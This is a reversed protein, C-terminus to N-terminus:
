EHALISNDNNTELCNSEAQIPSKVATFMLYQNTSALDFRIVTVVM